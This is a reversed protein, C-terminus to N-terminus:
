KGAEEISDYISDNLIKIFTGKMGSSRSEIIGASELKRLANVIVSRIIGAKDAVKSAIIIGEEGKLEELINRVADVESVSLSAVASKAVQQRRMEHAEEENISRLLELGVVATGYEALIIDDIDFRQGKRYIVMTGLRDGSIIIPSVIAEYENSTKESFGLTTLSVNEKTSLIDLFRGALSTDILEGKTDPILESLGYGEDNRYHGVIKGKRSIVLVNAALVDGMVECIDDFAFRDSNNNHLLQNIKRTKDLLQISMSNEM